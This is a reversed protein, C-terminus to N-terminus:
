IRVSSAAEEILRLNEPAKNDAPDSDHPPAIRVRIYPELMEAALLADEEEDWILVAEETFYRIVKAQEVSLFKGAIGVANQFGQQQLRQVTAVGRGHRLLVPVRDAM